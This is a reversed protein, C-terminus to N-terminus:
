LSGTGMKIVIIEQGISCLLKQINNTNKLYNLGSDKQLYNIHLEVRIAVKFDGVQPWKNEGVGSNM